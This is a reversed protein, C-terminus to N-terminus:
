QIYQDLKEPKIKLRKSVEYESIIGEYYAAQITSIYLPSSIPKPVSGRQEIGQEQLLLKEREKEEEKLRYQEEFDAKIRGYDASSLQNQYLLRTFLALQSLHTNNSIDEIIEHHYDNISSAPELSDLTDAYPGALFYYAFNNCWREVGPLNRNAIQSYELSEIEEEDLLYHGLEHALTFIERRFSQHRKLVIVNPKLYFGDINAKEKKNWTEVFEFVLINYEALSAIFAKLFDRRDETFRPYLLDRIELAVAKPDDGPGYTQITRKFEIDSLRALSELSLKQQEFENVIKVAGLSLEDTVFEQKRFFISDDGSTEPPAPDLYYHLGKNFVKDIRKLHNLKIEATFIDERTLPKSLGEGAIRLLDDESLRYMKMLHRLRSINHEVKM